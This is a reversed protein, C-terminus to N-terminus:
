GCHLLHLQNCYFIGSSQLNTKTQEVNDRKNRKKKDWRLRRPFSLLFFVGPKWSSPPSEAVTTLFLLHFTVTSQSYSLKINFWGKFFCVTNRFVKVIKFIILSEWDDLCHQLIEIEKNKTKESGRLIVPPTQIWLGIVFCLLNQYECRSLFNGVFYYICNIVISFVQHRCTQRQTSLM